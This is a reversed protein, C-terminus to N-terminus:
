EDLKTPLDGDNDDIMIVATMPNFQINANGGFSLSAFFQEMLETISDDRIPISVSTQTNTPSFTLQQTVQSFDGGALVSLSSSYHTDNKEILYM